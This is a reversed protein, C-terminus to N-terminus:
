CELGHLIYCLLLLCGRQISQGITIGSIVIKSNTQERYLLSVATFTTKARDECDAELSDKLAIRVAIRKNCVNLSTTQKHRM